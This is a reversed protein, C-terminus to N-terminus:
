FKRVGAGYWTTPVQSSKVIIEGEKAAIQEFVVNTLRDFDLQQRNFTWQTYILLISTEKRRLIIYFLNILAKSLMYKSWLTNKKGGLPDRIYVNYITYM